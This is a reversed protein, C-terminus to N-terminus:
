TSALVLEAADGFLAITIQATQERSARERHNTLGFEMAGLM